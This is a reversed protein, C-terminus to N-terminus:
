EAGDNTAKVCRKKRRVAYFRILVIGLPFAFFIADDIIGPSFDPMFYYCAGGLLLSGRLARAYGLFTFVRFFTVFLFSWFLFLVLNALSRFKFPITDSLFAATRRYRPNARDIRIKVVERITMKEDMYTGAPILFDLTVASEMRHLEDNTPRFPLNLIHDTALYGCFLTSVFVILLVGQYIKIKM